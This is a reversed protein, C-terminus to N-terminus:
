EGPEFFKIGNQSITSYIFEKARDKNIIKARINSATGRFVMWFHAQGEKIITEVAGDLDAEFKDPNRVYELKKFYNVVSEKRPDSTRDLINVTFKGTKPVKKLPIPDVIISVPEQNPGQAVLQNIDTSGIEGLIKNMTEYFQKFNKTDTKNFEGTVIKMKEEVRDIIYDKLSYSTKKKGKIESTVPDRFLKLWNASPKDKDYGPLNNWVKPDTNAKKVRRVTDLINDWVPFKTVSGEVGVRIANKNEKETKGEEEKKGSYDKVEYLTANIDVDFSENGGQIEAGIFIWACYLEGKGIGKAELHFIDNDIGSGLNFSEKPATESYLKEMFEKLDEPSLSLLYKYMSGRVAEKDGGPLLALFREFQGRKDHADAAKMLSDINQDESLPKELEEVPKADLFAQDLQDVENLSTGYKALVEDLVRLEKQSYPHEAYGNPLEYFWDRIINDIKEM